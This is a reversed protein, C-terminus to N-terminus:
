DVPWVIDPLRNEDIWTDNQQSDKRHYNGYLHSSILSYSCGSNEVSYAITWILTM